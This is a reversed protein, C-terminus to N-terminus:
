LYLRNKRIYDEVKKPILNSVSNEKQLLYRIETSSIKYEPDKVFISKMGDVKQMPFGQRPFIIFEVEKFLEKYNFWKDINELIDTGVVFYFEDTPNQKKLECVTQYSYSKGPIKNEIDLVKVRSIKEIVFTLMELRNKFPTLEKEFPHDKCPIIWVEDAIKKELISKILNLHGNHPPNFSGGFLAIKM